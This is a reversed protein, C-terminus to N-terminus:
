TTPQAKEHPIHMKTRTKRANFNSGLVRPSEKIVDVELRELSIWNNCWLHFIAHFKRVSDRNDLRAFVFDTKKTCGGVPDVLTWFM